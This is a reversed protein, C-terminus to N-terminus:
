AKIWTFAEDRESAAFNRVEGSMLLAGLKMCWAVWRPGGIV